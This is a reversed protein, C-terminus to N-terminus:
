TWRLVLDKDYLQIWANSNGNSLLIVNDMQLRRRSYEKPFRVVTHASFLQSMRSLTWFFQLTANSSSGKLAMSEAFDRDVKAVGPMKDAKHMYNGNLYDELSVPRHLM